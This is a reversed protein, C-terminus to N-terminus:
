VLSEPRYASGLCAKRSVLLVSFAPRLRFESLQEEKEENGDTRKKKTCFCNSLNHAAVLFAAPPRQM